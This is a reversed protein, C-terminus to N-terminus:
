ANGERVELVCETFQPLRHEGDHIDVPIIYRGPEATSPVPIRLFISGRGKELVLAENEPTADGQWARPLAARCRVMRASDAHNTVAVDVRASGGPQVRQEYPYCFAWGEDTGFNPHAWPLVQGFLRERAALATRMRRLEEDTFDFAVDVHANFIHDPALQQLLALCYDFGTDRGLFNRNQACYDDIGAPTFSDGSFFMRLGRGEVLLGGHHLTQGPLHYATLTFEHWRWCEGDFTRRDVRAPHPSGCTLRWARPDAIVEAVADCALLECDFARQFAPVGDVHDYHYHTIWLGEVSTIEGAALMRQLETVMSEDCCDMVFAAGTESILVWSTAILRLCAPVPTGPRIPMVGPADLYGPFLQPFYWRLASISAYADYCASLREILLDIAAHPQRMITGHAPVLVAPLADQVRRLSDTLEDRAGLFGHYDSVIDNGKQLSYLEWLQGPGAILDGTFAIQRDDVEVLYSLSGDTHGPTALATIQASGWAFTEGDVLVRSVRLPEALVLHSPHFSSNSWRYAPDNWFAAPDDFWRREAAPVVVEAGTLAYAGCAQDRHYHTFLVTEVTGPVTTRLGAVAEADGCDILLVREGDHLVGINIHDQWVGLHPTLAQFTGAM